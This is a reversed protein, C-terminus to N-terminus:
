SALPFWFLSILLLALEHVLRKVTDAFTIGRL